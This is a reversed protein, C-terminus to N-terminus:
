IFFREFSYITSESAKSDKKNKKKIDELKKEAKKLLSEAESLTSVAIKYIDAYYGSKKYEKSKDKINRNVFGVLSVANIVIGAVPNILNPIESISLGCLARLFTNLNFGNDAKVKKCEDVLDSIEKITDKLEKETNGKEVRLKLDNMHQKYKPMFLNFWFKDWKQALDGAKSLINSELAVDEEFFTEFREM